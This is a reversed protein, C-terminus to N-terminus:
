APAVTSADARMLFWALAGAAGLDYALCFAPWWAPVGANNVIYGHGHVADLVGHGALAGVVIWASARFGVVGAIAFPAM